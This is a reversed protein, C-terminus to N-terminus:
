LRNQKKLIEGPLTLGVFAFIVITLCPLIVNSIALAAPTKGTLSMLLWNGVGVWEFAFAGLGAIIGFLVLWKSRLIHGTMTISMGMLLPIFPSVRLRLTAYVDPSNYRVILYNYIISILFFVLTFIAFTWWTKEILTGVLNIPTATQKKYYKKQTLWILIPLLFWLLHGLPSETVYITISVLIAMAMTLMGVVSLCNGVDKSVVKRSQEIQQTIIELSREASMNTKEEM